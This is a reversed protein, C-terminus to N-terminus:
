KISMPCPHAMQTCLQREIVSFDRLFPCRAVELFSSKATEIADRRVAICLQDTSQARRDDSTGFSVGAVCILQPILLINVQIAHSHHTHRTVTGSWSYVREDCHADILKWNSCKLKRENPKVREHPRKSEKHPFTNPENMQEEMMRKKRSFLFAPLFPCVSHTTIPRHSAFLSSCESCDRARALTDATIIRHMSNECWM